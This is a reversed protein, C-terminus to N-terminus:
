STPDTSMENDILIEVFMVFSLFEGITATVVMLSGLKYRVVCAQGQFPGIECSNTFRIFIWRFLCPRNIVVILHERYHFRAKATESIGLRTNLDMDPRVEGVTTRKQDTPM